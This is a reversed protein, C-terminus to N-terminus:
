PLEARLRYFGNTRSVTPVDQFILTGGNGRLESARVAFPGDLATTGELRYFRNTQTLPVRFAATGEALALWELRLSSTASRPDTGSLYEQRDTFGDADFDTVAGATTLSNNFTSREWSEGIGDNDADQVLAFPISEQLAPYEASRVTIIFSAPAGASLILVRIRLRLDLPNAGPNYTWGGPMTATTELGGDNESFYRVTWRTGDGTPATLVVPGGLGSFDTVRLFFDRAVNFALPQEITTQNTGIEGSGRWPGDVARAL